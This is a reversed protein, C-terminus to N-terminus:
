CARQASLAGLTRLGGIEANWRWFMWRGFCMDLVEERLGEEWLCCLFGGCGCGEMGRERGGMDGERGGEKM